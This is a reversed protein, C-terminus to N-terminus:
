ALRGNPLAGHPGGLRAVMDIALPLSVRFCAGGAALNEALIVGSHAEVITRCIALGIGMGDRKTTFFSSFLRELNGAPIGPGNDEVTLAIAQAIRETRLVLRSGPTGDMAQLANLVLNVVVQQLQVPDGLVEPLGDRLDRVALAGCKELQTGLLTLADEVLASLSLRQHPGVQPSAMARIHAVVDSARRADAIMENTLTRLKDLDPEPRRLWNLAAEGNATIAALPQNVEHAISATLEGLSSVRAAHAFNAQMEALAKQARVKDTMDVVALLVQGASSLATSASRTFLVDIENGALTRMCALGRYIPIGNFAAELSGLLTEMRDPFWFPIISGGVIESRDRAGFLRLTTDNVDVVRIGDMIQVLLSPNQNLHTRFDTIRREYLDRFIAWAQRADMHWASFASAHFLDTYFAESERVAAQSRKVDSHDVISVFLRGQDVTGPAFSATFLADFERGDYRRLRTERTFYPKGELTSLVWDAFDANSSDPWYRAIAGLLEERECPGFLAVAQENVDRAYTSRMLERVAEPRAAFWERAGSVDGALWLKAVAQGKSFDIDWVSTPIAEFVDRYHRQREEAAEAARRESTVDIATEVVACPLGTADRRLSLQAYVIVEQGHATKRRLEGVRIMRQSLDNTQTSSPWQGDGLIDEVCRGEAESRSWGYIRESAKNWRSIRGNLDCIILSEQVLDLLEDSADASVTMTANDDRRRTRKEVLPALSAM